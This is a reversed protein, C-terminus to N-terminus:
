TDAKWCHYITAHGDAASVVIDAFHETGDALRVGVAQNNDTLIREVRSRYRIEGGLGIYRKEIAQTFALSGGM